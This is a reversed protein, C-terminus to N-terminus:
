KKAPLPVPLLGEKIRELITQDMEPLKTTESKKFAADLEKLLTAKIEAKKDADDGAAKKRDAADGEILKNLAKGYANQPSKDKQGKVHCVNCGAKKVKLAYDKNKEKDTYKKEFAKKFEPLASAQPVSLCAFCAVALMLVVFRKM